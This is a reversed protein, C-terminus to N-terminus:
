KTKVKFLIQGGFFGKSISLLLRTISDKQKQSLFKLYSQFPVGGGAWNKEVIFGSEELLNKLSEFTYWKVHTYDMLGSEEYEFKGFLMKLRNKYELLNPVAVLLTTKEPVMLKKIDKLLSSPYIIHELVHSCIITDYDSNKLAPLGTELNHIYVARCYKRAEDAEKKSLTIGDVIKGQISLIRANDGAGCGVDLINVSSNPIANIININGYNKYVKKELRNTM